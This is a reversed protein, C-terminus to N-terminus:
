EDHCGETPILMRCVHQCMEWLYRNDLTEMKKLSKFPDEYIKPLNGLCILYEQDKPHQNGEDHNCIEHDRGEKCMGNRSAEM